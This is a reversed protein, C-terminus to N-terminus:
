KEDGQERLIDLAARRRRYTRRTFNDIEAAFNPEAGFIITTADAMSRADIYYIKIVAALVPPLTTTIIRELIRRKQALTDSRQRLERDFDAIRAAAIGTPDTPAGVGHTEYERYSTKAAAARETMAELRNIDTELALADRRFRILQEIVNM